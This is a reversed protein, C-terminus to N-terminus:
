LLSKGNLYLLDFMYLCVQVTIDEASVDKRRRTSLVQFPLIRNRKIDVAVIESDLIFSDM